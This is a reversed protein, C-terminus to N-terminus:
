IFVCFLLFIYKSVILDESVTPIMDIVDWICKCDHEEGSPMRIALRILHKKKKQQKKKKVINNMTVTSKPAPM